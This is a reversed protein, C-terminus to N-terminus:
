WADQMEQCLLDLALHCSVAVRAVKWDEVSLFIGSLTSRTREMLLHALPGKSGDHTIRVSRVIRM